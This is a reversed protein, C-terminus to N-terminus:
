TEVEFTFDQWTKGDDESYQPRVDPHTRILVGFATTKEWGHYPVDPIPIQRLGRFLNHRAMKYRQIRSELEIVRDKLIVADGICRRAAAEMQPDDLRLMEQKLPPYEGNEDSTVYVLVATMGCYCVEFYPMM